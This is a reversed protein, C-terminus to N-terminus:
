VRGMALVGRDATAVLAGTALGIFLGHEVVGPVANLGCALTEPDDIRGCHADIIVHGGDTLLPEGSRTLRLRLDGAIGCRGLVGAV